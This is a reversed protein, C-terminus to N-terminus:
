LTCNIKHLMKVSYTTPSNARNDDKKDTTIIIM